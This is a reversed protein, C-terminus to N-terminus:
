VCVSSLLCMRYYELCAQMAIVGFRTPRTSVDWLGLNGRKDAAVAIIKDESPHVVMCTTREPTVKVFDADGNVLSLTALRSAYDLMGKKPVVRRKGEEKGEGALSACILFAIGHCKVVSMVFLFM